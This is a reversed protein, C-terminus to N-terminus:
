LCASDSVSVSRRRRHMAKVTAAERARELFREDHVYLQNRLEGLTDGAQGDIFAHLRLVSRGSPNAVMLLKHDKESVGVGFIDFQDKTRRILMDLPRFLPEFLFDAGLPLPERAPPVPM